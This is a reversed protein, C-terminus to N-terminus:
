KRRVKFMMEDPKKAENESEDGKVGAKSGEFDGSVGEPATTPATEEAGGVSANEVMVSKFDGEGHTVSGNETAMGALGDNPAGMQVEPAGMQVVKEAAEGQLQKDKDDM